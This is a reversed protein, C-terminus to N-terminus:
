PSKLNFFGKTEMTELFVKEASEPNFRKFLIKIVLSIQKVKERGYM